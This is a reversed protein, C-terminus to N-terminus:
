PEGRSSEGQLEGALIPRKDATRILICQSSHGIPGREDHLFAMATGAGVGGYHIHSDLCIWEGVSPRHLNLSTDPNIISFREMIQSPGEAFMRTMHPVSYTWDAIIACRVLPSLPEGAVLPHLMRFWLAPSESGPAPRMALALHFAEVESSLSDPRSIRPDETPATFRGSGYRPPDSGEVDIEAMRFRMASARAFVEDGVALTAELVDMSRGRRVVRIATRVPAMPAARMMDATFRAVQVPGEAPEREIARALLGLMASGHQTDKYWPGRALGTPVLDDGDSHFIARDSDHTDPQTPQGSM